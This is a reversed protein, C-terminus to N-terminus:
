KGCRGGLRDWFEAARKEHLRTGFRRHSRTEDDRYEKAWAKAELYNAYTRLVEVANLLDVASAKRVNWLSVGVIKWANGKWAEGSM